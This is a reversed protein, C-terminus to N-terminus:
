ENILYNLKWFNNKYNEINNVIFECSINEDDKFFKMKMKQFIDNDIFIGGGEDMIEKYINIKWSNKFPHLKIEDFKIRLKPNTELIRKLVDQAYGSLFDLM